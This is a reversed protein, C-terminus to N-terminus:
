AKGWESKLISHVSLDYFEGAKNVKYERLTGEFKMNCKSMVRGSYVNKPNYLASIRNFNVEEFLFDIVAKLAESTIGTNWYKSSLCYGIECNYSDEYLNVVSIGGIVEKIEKLEIAWNYVDKSYASVWNTLLEQSDAVSNHAHWSLYKSVERDSAWNKFMNDSDAVQFKRLILRDTEITVTGKHNLEM